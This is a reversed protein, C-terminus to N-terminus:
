IKKLLEKLESNELVETIFYLSNQSLDVKKTTYRRKGDKNFYIEVEPKNPFDPNVRIVKGIEGNNLKVWCGVPYLTIERIFNKLIHKSFQTGDREIIESIAQFPTKGKERYPRSHTMAEFTDSIGIIKAWEHIKEDTLGEPYGQGNAREHESYIAKIIDEALGSIKELKEKAYIPHKKIEEMEEKTLKGRKFIIEKSVSNMGIDHLLSAIGLNILEKKSHGLSVGILTSLILVNITHYKFYEEMEYDSVIEEILKSPDANYLLNVVKESSERIKEINIVGKKYIEECVDSCVNLIKTYLTEKGTLFKKHVKIGEQKEKKKEKKVIDSFRVM